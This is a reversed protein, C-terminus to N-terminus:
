IGLEPMFKIGIFIHQELRLAKSHDSEDTMNGLHAFGDCADSDNMQSYRIVLSWWRCRHKSFKPAPKHKQLMMPTAAHMLCMINM